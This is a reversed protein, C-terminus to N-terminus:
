RIVTAATLRGEAARDFRAAEAVRQYLQTRWM